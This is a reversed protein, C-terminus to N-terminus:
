KDYGREEVNTYQYFYANFSLEWEETSLRTGDEAIEVRQNKSLQMGDTIVHRHDQIFHEYVQFVNGKSGQISISLINKRFHSLLATDEATAQGSDTGVAEVSKSGPDVDPSPPAQMDLSEMLSEVKKATIDGLIDSAAVMSHEGIFVSTYTFTYTKQLNDLYYLIEEQSPLYPYKEAITEIRQKYGDIKERTEEKKSLREEISRRREVVAAAEVRLTERKQRAPTVYYTYVLYTSCLALFMIGILKTQQSTNEKKQMKSQFFTKIKLCRAKRIQCKYERKKAAIEKSDKVVPAAEMFMNKKKEASYKYLIKSIGDPATCLISFANYGTVIIQNGLDGEMKAGPDMPSADVLIDNVDSQVEVKYEFVDPSFDPKLCGRDVKLESLRCEASLERGNEAQHFVAEEGEPDYVADGVIDMNQREYYGSWSENTRDTTETNQIEDSADEQRNTEGPLIEADYEDAWAEEAQIEPEDAEKLPNGWNGNELTQSEDKQLAFENEDEPYAEGDEELGASRREIVLQYSAKNSRNASFVRILFFNMESELDIQGLDGEVVAEPSAAFAEVEAQTCEAPVEYYYYEQGQAIGVEEDNVLLLKLSIDDPSSKVVVSIIYERLVEGEKTIRVSFTNVGRKVPQEGLDGECLFGSKEQPLAHLLITQGSCDQCSYYVKNDDEMLFDLEHDQIYLERVFSDNIESQKM